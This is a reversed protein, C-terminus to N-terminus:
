KLSGIDLSWICCSLNKKLFQNDAILTFLASLKKIKERLEKLVLFRNMKGELFLSLHRKSTQNSMDLLLLSDWTCFRYRRSTWTDIIPHTIDNKQTSYWVSRCFTHSMMSYWFYFLGLISQHWSDRFKILKRIDNLKIKGNM